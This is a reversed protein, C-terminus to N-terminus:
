ASRRPPVKRHGAHVHGARAGGRSGGGERLMCASSAVWGVVHRHQARLRRLLAPARTRPVVANGRVGGDARQYRAGGSGQSVLPTPGLSLMARRDEGQVSGEAGQDGRIASDWRREKRRVLGFDCIKLDCNSNILLNSPKLDRHVIGASHMYKLGRLM